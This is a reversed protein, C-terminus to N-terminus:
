LFFVPAHAGEPRKAGIILHTILHIFFHSGKMHFMIFFHIKFAFFAIHFYRCVIFIPMISQAVITKVFFIKWFLPPM